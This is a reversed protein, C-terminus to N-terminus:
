SFMYWGKCREKRSLATKTGSQRIAKNFEEYDMDVTTAELAADNFIERRGDKTLIKRWDIAGSYLSKTDKFKISFLVLDLRVAQHDSELGDLIVRCNSICKHLTVLCVIVDLMSQKGNLTSTWTGHGINQKGMYYTNMVRLGHSMYVGLLNKGKSNRKSIGHPGLAPAFLDDEEQSNCGVNANINAGM